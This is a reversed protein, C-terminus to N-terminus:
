DSRAAVFRAELFTGIAKLAQAAADLRGVGALFGHPMGEWVDISADAGAAVAREVDDDGVHVRIPPLGMLDGYLASAKSGGAPGRAM